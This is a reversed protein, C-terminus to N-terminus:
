YGYGYLPRRYGGARIARGQGALGGNTCITELRRIEDRLLKADGRNWETERDKHRVKSVSQGSLLQYYAARLTPLVSCDDGYAQAQPLPYGGQKMPPRAFRPHYYSM